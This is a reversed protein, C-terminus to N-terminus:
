FESRSVGHDVFGLAHSNCRLDLELARYSETKSHNNVNNQSLEYQNFKQKTQSVRLSLIEFNSIELGAKNKALELNRSELKCRRSKSVWSKELVM